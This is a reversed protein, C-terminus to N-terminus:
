FDRNENSLKGPTLGHLQVCNGADTKVRGIFTRANYLSQFFTCTRPRSLSKPRSGPLFLAQGCVRLVKMKSMSFARAFQPAKNSCFPICSDDRCSTEGSTMHCTWPVAHVLYRNTGVNCNIPALLLQRFLCLVLLVLLACM